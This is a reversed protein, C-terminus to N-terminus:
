AYWKCFSRILRWLHHWITKERLPLTQQAVSPEDYAQMAQVPGPLRQVSDPEAQPRKCNTRSAAIALFQNGITIFNVFTVILLFMVWALMLRFRVSEKRTALWHVDTKLPTQARFQPPDAIYSFIAPLTLTVGLTSANGLPKAFMNHWQKLRNEYISRQQAGVAQHQLASTQAKENAEPDRNHKGNLRV